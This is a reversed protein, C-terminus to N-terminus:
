TAVANITSYIWDLYNTVKTYIGFTQFRGCGEGWSVLGLLFWTGNLFTVMPGGSDGKCADKRSGPTGACIMNDTVRDKLKEKCLTYSTLKIRIFLLTNPRYRDDNEDIAGWGTIVVNKNAILLKREATEKTPLCVPIIYNTFVAVQSLRLLAIDSDMNSLSFNPHIYVRNVLITDETDENVSRNHEGLKVRFREGEHVCHAATLVWFQHILVGGCIFKGSATMLLIQWPSSGKKMVTGKIIRPGLPGGKRINAAQEGSANCSIGDDSLKYGAACSCVRRNREPIESCFHACYGYNDSCNTALLVYQCQPGDFGEACHCQYGGILDQCTSNNVCLNPNCQDGDVYKNWFILTKDLSSHIENAEEFVCKEEFCERELNGPKVEEFLFNARKRIRLVDSADKERLFVAHPWYAM